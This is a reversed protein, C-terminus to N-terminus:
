NSCGSHKAAVAAPSPNHPVWCDNYVQLLMRWQCVGKCSITSSCTGSHVHMQAALSALGGLPGLNPHSHASCTSPHMPLSASLPLLSKLQDPLGRCSTSGLCQHQLGVLRSYHVAEGAERLQCRRISYGLSYEIPCYEVFGGRPVCCAISLLSM